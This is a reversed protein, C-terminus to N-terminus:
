RILSSLKTIQICMCIEETDLLERDLSHNSDTESEKLFAALDQVKVAHWLICVLSYLVPQNWCLPLLYMDPLTVLM